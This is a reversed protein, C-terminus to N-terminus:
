AFISKVLELTQEETIGPTNDKQISISFGGRHSYVNGIEKENEGLLKFNKSEVVEKEVGDEILTVKRIETAKLSKAKM